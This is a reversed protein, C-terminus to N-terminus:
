KKDRAPPSGSVVLGDAEISRLEAGSRLVSGEYYRSGNALQIHKLGNADETIGVMRSPLVSQWAAWQARTDPGEEKVPRARYMVKDSVMVAPHLDETLRKIQQRVADDEVTGSVVLRGSGAYAVTVGPDSVFRRAQEIMEEASLVNVAVRSGFAALAQQLAQRRSRSEVYGRVVVSGGAGSITEVEPYAAVAQELARLDVANGARGRADGGGSISLAGVGALSLAIVVVGVWRMSFAKPAAQQRAAAGGEVGPGELPAFMSDESQSHVTTYVADLQFEIAGVGVVDGAVLSRRPQEMAAGNLLVAAAGVKQVSVVLEGVNLALHRPLVDSGPLMVDCDGASGVLNLGRKLAMTRGRMAGSLFRLCWAPSLGARASSSADMM